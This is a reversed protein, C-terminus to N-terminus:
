TINFIKLLCNITEVDYGCRKLQFILQLYNVESTLDVLSGINPDLDYYTIVASIKELSNEPMNELNVDSSQIFRKLQLKFEDRWNELITKFKEVISGLIEKSLFIDDKNFMQMANIIKFQWVIQSSPNKELVGLDNILSLYLPLAHMKDKSLCTYFIILFLQSKELESNSVFNKSEKLDLFKEIFELLKKDTSFALLSKIDVKWCRYQETTLTQALISKLRDPDELHSLCGARKKIDICGCNKLVNELQDWNRGREFCVPWYNPDNVKVSKLTSLEPLMCPAMPFKEIVEGDTEIRCLCLKGTDIDRPLFLRPEVALVYLHRFAQLHYRNDNSHNPFKPFLACILAAIAEPTRSLTYRGAGLFLFGLAMHIAMQSGYTVQSHSPGIRSRLYRIIRLIEINGTGAYVLSLSILVLILSSEVTAKGAFEGVYQGNWSLILKITRKLAKFAKHNETGAYKLGICLSAGAVINCYAQANAEHDIGNGSDQPGRNLDFELKSPFQGFLWDYDDGIENWLILNKAIIRLLLLDPRVLDLLYSTDPPMMWQAVSKNGTNFFMLGLALTAGPATVDINVTDGERVQFSPLKYKEKQSGTLPRKTGGVMYYHLTDPLQLDRLGAPSEGQGLTVLGLALGATLAYSEREVSNEMEPGPPRGIEQLLVEAIHRKATGQYLLGIGMLSAVQTNQPIDLELATAPLLAEIHVSLLKTTTNDMTGRHTASIGLLLGVSTMEDCKVLYEYVSMFSLSKLHGNLGLAMLFGAHETPIDAQGKPKNYVIWTSDIDKAHPSIKLGAAVGNHFSPWLNMNAPFEILQMEITAGKVPEKGTLCLKPIPMSDTPAPISTRLTFMGRGMPLTMTRTCLAYLQKEQEEIFEHDTVGPSQTLDILVPESSNLLRRVETIRLDDPFRLSLLKTNINEMGDEDSTSSESKTLFNPTATPPVLRSYELSQAIIFHISAPLREIDKRNMDMNILMQILQVNRNLNTSIYRKKIKSIEMSQTGPIELNQLWNRIKEHGHIILSVLQVVNKSMTNVKFICPYKSIERGHIIDSIQQFINPVRETLLHKHQMKAADEENYFDHSSIKRLYPFNLTYHLCYSSLKMSLALEYLFEALYKLYKAFMSNLKFDEFLLHLTYFIVPVQSFLPASNDDHLITTASESIKKNSEFSILFEWDENSGCVSTDDDDKRRKKAEDSIVMNSASENTSVSRGLLESLVNSFIEWEKKYSFNQSGPVNRASYWKVLLQVYVDKKLVQRLAYICQTIFHNENMLPLSIRYMKGCGYTLTLRNGAPDRLGICLNSVKNPLSAHLPQVPSLLNLEDDFQSDSQARSPLLSSRRPFNAMLTATTCTIPTTFTPIALSSIHVKSILVPGTYLVLSSNSDLIAIMNMKELVVADKAPLSSIMGFIQTNPSSTKELRSLQLKGTRPLLYCLYVQGILDTHMFALSAVECFDKGILSETWIQELCFEPLIPKSPQTQSVKRIDQVSISHPGISSQLRAVPSQLNSRNFHGSLNSQVPPTGSTNLFKGVHSSYGPNGLSSRGMVLPSNKSFSPIKLSNHSFYQSPKNTSNFTTGVCTENACGVVHIEDETAKRLKAVFHKGIKNDFLLILDSQPTTFIIKYDAETLYGIGGTSSKSLLPCMEDLPHTLTFFRPMSILHTQIIANSAEKELLIGYKTSWVHSVAFELNTLYDEGNSCYVRLCTSDILCISTNENSNQAKEETKIEDKNIQAQIFSENCFFAFRIQSDCTFCTRPLVSGDELLGKSWVATNGKVYLEEESNIYYDTIYSSNKNRNQVKPLNSYIKQNIDDFDKYISRISWFEKIEDNSSINFNQMRHLLLHESPINLQQKNHNQPGPHEEVAQRGRPIFEVPSSAAIM